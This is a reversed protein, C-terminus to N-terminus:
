QNQTIDKKFDEIFHEFLKVNESEELNEKTLVYTGDLEIEAIIRSKKAPCKKTLVNKKDTTILYVRIHETNQSELLKLKWYGTQAVREALSTKSSIIAYVRYDKPSFIVIDADPLQMGFKGFNVLVNRKVADLEQPLRSSDLKNGNVLELELEEILGPIIYQLLREFCNGIFSHWSQEHNGKPKRRLFDQKHPEKAKEFVDAVYKYADKGRTEEVEIYLNKVDEFSYKDM